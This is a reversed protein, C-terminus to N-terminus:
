LYRKALARRLPGDYLRLTLYAILISGFLLGLAGPLSQQFTLNHNKVWAYYYLLPYHLPYSLDGLRTCLQRM